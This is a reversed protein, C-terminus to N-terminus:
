AGSVSLCPIFALACAYYTLSLKVPILSSSTISFLTHNNINVESRLKTIEQTSQLLGRRVFLRDNRFTSLTGGQTRPKMSLDCRSSMVTVCLGHAYPSFTVSHDNVGITHSTSAGKEIKRHCQIQFNITQSSCIYQIILITDM